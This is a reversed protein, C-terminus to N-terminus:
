KRKYGNPCKPNVATVKKTIKGKICTITTKKKEAALKAEAERKAMLEAEAKAKAEAEVRAKAEAEVRAKAEEEAKAKAEEEQKAKLEAALRAEEAQLFEKRKDEAVINEATKILDLFRNAPTFGAIGGGVGFSQSGDNRCNPLAWGMGGVTGLYYRTKDVEVFFGAGSDDDCMSGLTQSLSVGFDLITQNPPIHWTNLHYFSELQSKDMLNGVMRHPSRYETRPNIRQQPNQLGYGVMQVKSSNKLFTQIEDDTAVKVINGMPLDEELILITFDDIRTLDKGIRPRYTPAVLVKKVKYKKKGITSDIGPEYVFGDKEWQEVSKMTDLFHAVTFVIRESYLFGSTVGQVKVANPDGTADQGFEVSHALSAISLAQVFVLILTTTLAIVKNQMAHVVESAQLSNRGPNSGSSGM